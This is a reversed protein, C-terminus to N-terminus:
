KKPKSLYGLGVVSVILGVSWFILDLNADWANIFTALFHIILRGVALGLLIIFFLRPNKKNFLFISFGLLILDLVLYYADIPHRLQDLFHIAWPLTTIKGINDLILFSGTRILILASLTPIILLNLYSLVSEKKYILYSIVALIAFIAGGFLVYGGQWFYLFEIFSFIQPHILFYFARAGIIGAFFGLFFINALIESNLKKKKGLYTLLFFGVLAALAFFTGWTQFKLTFISFTPHIIM